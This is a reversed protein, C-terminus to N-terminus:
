NSPAKLSPTNFAFILSFIHSYLAYTQDALDTLTYDIRLNRIKVGLGIASQFDVSRKENYGTVWQVNGIGARLFVLKRYDFELGLHPDLSVPNFSLLAHRKGDFTLDADLEALMGIKEKITFERAAGVLVRPLTVEISNDPIENGTALFVDRFEETHFSWANFTSTIDKGTIGFKWKNIRYQAGVDFGFGWAHAFDGTRRYILKANGGYTLGEHTSSRAYSFLIGYDAISFTKIRDYRINGDADILDLTNPIDDVGFRILSFGAVGRPDTRVAVSGYDYKAIGAYYESHMLALEADKSLGVLGSPNWYGSTVGASTAAVSGSMALARADVGINLFENSYKPVQSWATACCFYFVFATTIFFYRNVAMGDTSYSRIFGPVPIKSKLLHGM